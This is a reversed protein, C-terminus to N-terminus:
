IMAARNAIAITAMALGGRMRGIWVNATSYLEGSVGTNSVVAGMLIFLPIVTIPYFAINSYPETGVVILASDWGALLGYGVFGVLVMVAGIWIRMFILVILVIIGMLGLMESSM